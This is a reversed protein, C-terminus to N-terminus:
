SLQHSSQLDSCDSQCSATIEDVALAKRAEGRFMLNIQRPPLRRRIYILLQTAFACQTGQHSYLHLYIFLLSHYKSLTSGGSCECM